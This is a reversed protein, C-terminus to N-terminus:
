KVFEFDGDLFLTLFYDKLRFEYNLKDLKIIDQHTNIQINLQQTTSQSPDSQTTIVCIM